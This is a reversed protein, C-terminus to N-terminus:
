TLSFDVKFYLLKIINYYQLCYFQFVFHTFFFEKEINNKTLNYIFLRLIQTTRPVIIISHINPNINQNTFKLATASVQFRKYIRNQLDM